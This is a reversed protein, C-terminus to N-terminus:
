AGEKGFNAGDLFDNIQQDTVVSCECPTLNARLLGREGCFNGFFWMLESMATIRKFTDEDEPLLGLGHLHKATLTSMAEWLAPPAHLDNETTEVRHKFQEWMTQLSRIDEASYTM